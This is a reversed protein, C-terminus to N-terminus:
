FFFKIFKIVFFFSWLLVAWVFWGKLYEEGIELVRDMIFLFVSGVVFVVFHLYLRKKQKTRKRANEYLEHQEQM